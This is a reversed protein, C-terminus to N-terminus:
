YYLANLHPVKPILGLFENSKKNKISLYQFIELKSLTLVERYNYFSPAKNDHNLESQSGIYKSPIGLLRLFNVGKQSLLFAESEKIVYGTDLLTNLYKEDDQINELQLNDNERIKLLISMLKDDKLISAEEEFSRKLIEEYINPLIFEM